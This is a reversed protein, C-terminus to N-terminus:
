GARCPQHVPVTPREFICLPLEEAAKDTHGFIIWDPVGSNHMRHGSQSEQTSRYGLWGVVAIAAVWFLLVVAKM